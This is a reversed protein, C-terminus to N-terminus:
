SNALGSLSLPITHKTHYFDTFLLFVLTALGAIRLDHDHMFLVKANCYKTTFRKNATFIVPDARSSSSRVQSVQNSIKAVTDIWAVGNSTIIHSLGMTKVVFFFRPKESTFLFFLM